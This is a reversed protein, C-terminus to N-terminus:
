LSRVKEITPLQNQLEIGLENFIKFITGNATKVFNKSVEQIIGSAGSSTIKPSVANIKENVYYLIEAHTPNDSLVTAISASFNDPIIISAYYDGHRVGRMADAESVFRWGLKHNDKLSAVVEKGLNLSQGKMTTGKDNNAVAIAIDGTNGYPDWSAKINFWAYLSPLMVLGAIIVLAAWNTVINKVDRGYISLIKCGMRKKLTTIHALHHNGHWAYTCLHENLNTEGNAPHTYTRLWQDGSLSELVLVFRVHLAELLDLSLEPDPLTSDALEAWLQEEYPKIVPNDETLALKLRILSNMHSDGVHHVVQRVTWGGPRYPTDLQEKSLGSVAQRLKSPLSRIEGILATREDENLDKKTECLGIPYKLDDTM